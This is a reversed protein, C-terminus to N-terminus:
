KCIFMRMPAGNNARMYGPATVEIGEPDSNHAAGEKCLSDWSYNCMTTGNNCFVVYVTNDSKSVYSSIKYDSSAIAIGTSSILSLLTLLVSKILVNM